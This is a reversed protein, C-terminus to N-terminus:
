RPAEGNTAASKLNEQMITKLCAQRQQPTEAGSKFDYHLARMRGSRMEMYFVLDLECRLSKYHWITAAAQSETTAAPGLLQNARQQDIGVLETAPPAPLASQAAESEPTQPEPAAEAPVSRLGVPEAATSSAAPEGPTSRALERKPRAIPRAPPRPRPQYTYAPSYTPLPAQIAVCGTLMTALSVLAIRWLYSARM